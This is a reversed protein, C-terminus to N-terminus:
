NIILKIKPFIYNLICVKEMERLFDTIAKTYDLGEPLPPKEVNEFLHLKFQKATKMTESNGRKRQLVGLGWAKVNWDQDYELITPM